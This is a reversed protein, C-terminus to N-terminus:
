PRANVDTALMVLMATYMRLNLKFQEVTLFEHESHGSYNVGPMSPGFNVGNPVLRAHTGGGISLPKADAIKTYHKFVQLLTPVQPPNEPLHADGMSIRSIVAQGPHSAEWSQLIQRVETELQASPKGAPSRFNLGVTLLDNQKAVTGLNLTLPGMFPHSYAMKGFKEALVGIGVLDRIFIIAHSEPSPKWAFQGLVQALYAIANVGKDPTSSHAALGSAHIRLGDDTEEFQFKVRPYKKTEASLQKQLKPTVGKLLVSAKDPVQSLFAGGQFDIIEPDQGNSANTKPFGIWVGSWGKEAVTVPYSADLAINVSPPPVEKLFAIFPEWDSEETYSIILEIRKKIPIGSEALAKMAYLAIAIPGKDDEIGRGILKGKESEKDLTFPSKKWRSADVPVVDGHTVLGLREPGEGISIVVVAGYDKFDFDLSRALDKLYVSMGQFHPNDANALGSKNVTPFRILDASVEVAKEYYTAEAKAALETAAKPLNESLPTWILILNLCFYIM